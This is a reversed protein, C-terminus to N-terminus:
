KSDYANSQIQRLRTEEDVPITNPDEEKPKLANEAGYVTEAKIYALTRVMFTEVRWLILLVVAFSLVTMGTIFWLIPALDM